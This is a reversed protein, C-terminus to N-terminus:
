HTGLGISAKGLLRSPQEPTKSKFVALVDAEYFNGGRRSCPGLYAGPKQRARHAAEMFVGDPLKFTEGPVSPIMVEAKGAVPVRITGHGGGFSLPDYSLDNFEVIINTAGSPINRVILPPSMGEGGNRDCVGVNPVAGSTWRPDTFAVDLKAMQEVPVYRTTACSSLLVVLLCVLSRTVLRLM